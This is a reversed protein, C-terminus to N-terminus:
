YGFQQIALTDKPFAHFETRLSESPVDTAGEEGLRHSFTWNTPLIQCDM